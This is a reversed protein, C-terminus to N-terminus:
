FAMFTDLDRQIEDPATYWKTRGPVRLCEDLLTRNLREPLRHHAALPGEDHPTICSGCARRGDSRRQLGTTPVLGPVLQDYRLPNSRTQRPNTVKRPRGCVCSVM